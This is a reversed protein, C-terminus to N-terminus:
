RQIEAPGETPCVCWEGSAWLHRAALTADAAPAGTQKGLARRRLVNRISESRRNATGTKEPVSPIQPVAARHGVFVRPLKSKRTTWAAPNLRSSSCARRCAVTVIDFDIRVRAHPTHWQSHAFCCGPFCAVLPSLGRWALHSIAVVVAVAVLVAWAM